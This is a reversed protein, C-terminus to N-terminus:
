VGEVVASECQLIDGSAAYAWGVMMAKWTNHCQGSFIYDLRTMRGHPTEALREDKLMEAFTHGAMSEYEPGQDGYRAVVNELIGHVYVDCGFWHGIFQCAECDHQFKPKISM